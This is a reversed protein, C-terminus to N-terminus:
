VSRISTYLYQIGKRIALFAVLIPILIPLSSIIYSLLSKDWSKMDDWELTYFTPTDIQRYTDGKMYVLGETASWEPIETDTYMLGNPRLNVYVSFNTSSYVWKNYKFDWYYYHLAKDKTTDAGANIHLQDNVARILTTDSEWAYCWIKATGDDYAVTKGCTILHSDLNYSVGKVTISDPFRKQMLQLQEWTPRRIPAYDEAIANVEEATEASAVVSLSCVLVIALLFISFFKRM